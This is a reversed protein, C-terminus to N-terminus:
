IFTGLDFTKALDSPEIQNKKALAGLSAIAQENATAKETASDASNQAAAAATAAEGAKKTAEAVDTKLQGIDAKAQTMDSQLTGLTGNITVIDATAKESAQKVTELTSGQETVIAADAAGINDRAQQKQQSELSQAENFKVHGNAVTKLAELADADKKLADAVEKLTDMEAGVGGLLDDKVAQKAKTIEDDVKSSSYVKDAGAVADDISPKAAVAQEVAEVKKEAATVKKEVEEVRVTLDGAVGGGADLERIVTDLRKDKDAVYVDKASVIAFSGGNKPTLGSILEVTFKEAM